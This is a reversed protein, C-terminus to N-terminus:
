SKEEILRFGLSYFRFSVTYNNRVASRMYSPNHSWSGGRLVRNGTVDPVDEVLRFGISRYFNSAKDYSRYQSRAQSAINNWAGGRMVRKIM